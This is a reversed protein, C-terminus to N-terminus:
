PKLTLSWTQAVHDHGYAHEPQEHTLTFGAREYLRRASHLNDNTYLTLTAYGHTTAYRIVQDVLTGGVGRGRAKPEVLLTRLKATTDDGRVCLIAGVKTGGIEAVWARDTAPDYDAAIQAVLREFTQDYGFERAYLEGHRQVLWGLDGPELDRLTLTGQPEIAAKLTQMAQVVEDADPLAELVAAVEEASETDMEAFRAAGAETLTVVQKRADVPSAARTALGQEELKSLVRSLQGPDIELAQRLDAVETTGHSLEYLVRIEPLPRAYSGRTLGMRATYFRNFDRVAEVHNTTAM